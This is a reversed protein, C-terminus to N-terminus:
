ASKRLPPFSASENMRDLTIGMAQAYRALALTPFYIPYYHYRLYFVKPFGTGTFQTETWSGDENQSKILYEIGRQVENSGGEGVAILALVAWATQSATPEGKGMENRDSYSACSEGWGGCSQQVSKIWAAARQVRPHNMDYGISALGVLSQWTGYIYNVGWRGWWCGEPEQHKFLFRIAEEIFPEGRRYGFEGLMELIRATIDPCSPDLMANHDAFPIAELIPNNVDRDFAAWGFDSSQMAIEFELARRVAEQCTLEGFRGTRRIAMLATATDDLDPYFRNNYEFAWGGAPIQPNRKTWDGPKTIERELLWDCAKLLSEHEPPVGAEALAVMSWTTDWIPSVCPQLRLTEGEEIMLDTLQKEAWIMEPSDDAYGLCRLAIVTYVMPPFIAGVGDSEEFHELLWAEALKLARPRLFKSGWREYLKLGRDLVRFANEWSILRGQVQSIEPIRDPTPKELFLEEIGLEDPLPTIPKLAQAIALPVVITRTWSSMHYLNFPSWSPLLMIEVPVSPCHNYPIQGLAALYFRTFSNVGEAGGMDRILKRARAMHPENSDHGALKLAFYAKVSVSVDAPGDPFNSWGGDAQQKALIYNACKRIASDGLRGLIVQLLVYESELITDGELEACWHGDSRQLDILYDRASSVSQRLTQSDVNHSSIQGSESVPPAFAQPAASVAPGSRMIM